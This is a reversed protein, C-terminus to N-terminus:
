APIRLLGQGGGSDAPRHAAPLVGELTRREVCLSDCHNLTRAPLLPATQGPEGHGKALPSAVYPSLTLAFLGQLLQRRSLSGRDYLGVLREMEHHM